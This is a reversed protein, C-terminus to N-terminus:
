AIEITGCTDLPTILIDRWPASFVARFAQPQDKVNYEAAPQVSNGYGRDFSGHMGVLRCREAIRPERKLAEALNPVPAVAIITVPETSHMVLDILAAVGDAHVTGRYKALDFGAIWPELNRTGDPMKQNVGIGIPVDTRGAAELFKAAISARYRTDGTATLVLKVELEPSRLMQALAWSDDIDTGIDTDFVVPTRGAKASGSVVLLGMLM